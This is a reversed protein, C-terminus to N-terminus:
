VRRSESARSGNLVRSSLPPRVARVTTEGSDSSPFAVSWSTDLCHSSENWEQESEAEAYDTETVVSGAEDRHYFTWTRIM